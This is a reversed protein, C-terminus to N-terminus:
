PTVGYRQACVADYYEGPGAAEFSGKIGTAIYPTMGGYGGYSNKANVYGCIATIKGGTDNVTFAKYRGFKASDPDKLNSKVASQVKSWNSSSLKIMKVSARRDLDEQSPGGCSAVAFGAALLIAVNVIKQM